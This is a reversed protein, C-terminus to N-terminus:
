ELQHSAAVQEEGVFHGLRPVVLNIGGPIIRFVAEKVKVIEGDINLPVEQDCVVRVERAKYFDVGPETRHQGKVYKPLTTLIDFFNKEGILCIDFLGDDIEAEPAPLIGGGYYKGNAVAILLFKGDIVQNNLSIKMHLNDFRCMTKIISAFYCLHSPILSNKKFKQANYVVEADFGFSAINAFYRENVVALDIPATGGYVTHFLLDKAPLDYQVSKIFDNGSGSPIVALSSNSGVLGNVIENFTGDGGVSYVRIKEESTYQRTIETAHGPYQTIEIYYEHGRNAFFRKIEPIMKLPKGKGAIPNIIFLHKM